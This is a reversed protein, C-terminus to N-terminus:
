MLAGLKEHVRHLLFFAIYARHRKKKEGPQEQERIIITSVSVGGCSTLCCCVARYVSLSLVPSGWSWVPYEIHNHTDGYGAKRESSCWMVGFFICVHTAACVCFEDFVCKCVPEWVFSPGLLKQYNKLKTKRAVTSWRRELTRQKITNM